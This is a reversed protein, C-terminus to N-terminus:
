TLDRVVAEQAEEDLRRLIAAGMAAHAAHDVRGTDLLVTGFLVAWGRARAVQATSARYRALCAARAGSEAFLSWVAALDTAVDGATLDGWDIVAGIADGDVLVNRAHLDGHLWRSESAPPAALAADWLGLVAPTMIDTTDRLRAIRHAIDDARRQLPVGRVPNRPAEPPAPRHLVRLFDALVPAQNSSPAAVDATSGPLWAVISWPWPYIDSPRGVRLPAPVPLPLSEALAPLWAQEHEILPVARQRRPLRVALDDGLRYMANDWGADLMVVREGALDPHQRRVLERVLAADIDHEAAPSGAAPRAPEGTGDGESM